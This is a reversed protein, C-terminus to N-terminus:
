NITDTPSGDGGYEFRALDTLDLEVSRRMKIRQLKALNQNITGL